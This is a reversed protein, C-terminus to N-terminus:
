LSFRPWRLNTIIPKKCTPKTPLRLSMNEFITCQYSLVCLIFTPEGKSITHTNFSLQPYSFVFVSLLLLLLCHLSDSATHFSLGFIIDWSKSLCRSSFWKVPQFITSRYSFFIQIVPQMILLLYVLVITSLILFHVNCVDCYKCELYSYVCLSKLLSCLQWWCINM